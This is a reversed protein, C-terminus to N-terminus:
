SSFFETFYQSQKALTFTHLIRDQARQCFEQKKEKPLDSLYEIKDALASANWKQEVWGTLEHLVNESLGEANTVICLLGSAQAELVSNCFGEQLSPQLYVDHERMMMAIEHHSKKGAFTVESELDLQHRAFCLREYDVGGGVITYQFKVGRAKLLAMADLAVELGKKWQMRAVTLIKVIEPQRDFSRTYLFKNADIAPMIKVCPVSEPLGLHRAEIYLDDSITHVKDLAKWLKSYVNPRKLPFISIDYGRFSASVKAGIAKGLNERGVGLTAFGFHLRDITFPLIHASTFLARVISNFSSGANRELYYYRYTRVPFRLVLYVMTVGVMLMRMISNSPLDFGSVEHIGAIKTNTVRDTFVIVRFGSASLGRIKNLMFTESYGPAQALVLGITTRSGM